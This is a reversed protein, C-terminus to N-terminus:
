TAKEHSIGNKSLFKLFEGNIYENDSNTCITQIHIGTQNKAWAKYQKFLDLAAQGDKTKLFYCM